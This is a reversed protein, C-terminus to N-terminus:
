MWCGHAGNIYRCKKPLKKPIQAIQLARAADESSCIAVMSAVRGDYPSLRQTYAEGQIENSGMWINARM